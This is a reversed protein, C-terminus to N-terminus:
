ALAAQGHGQSNIKNEDNNYAFGAGVCILELTCVVLAICVLMPTEEEALTNCLAM